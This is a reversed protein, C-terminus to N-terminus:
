LFPVPVFTLAFLVLSLVALAQRAPTLPEEQLAPPHGLGVVFRTLLWWVLWAWSLFIGAGLLGFSVARSGARAGRRGLLAYLVHGGDLQGLPVLNLATVYLGLWAAFGVPHVALDAGAPLPGHVARAVLWTLASDGFVRPEGSAAAGTLWARLADYPSAPFQSAGGVSVVESHAFGWLLLPLAVLLGAIPGAAGIELTARRSPLPSRIRIVAGLTGAGFPVPIFFPLTADVGHRRALVYHGMEHALLIAVLAGAFPLGGRFVEAALAVAAPLGGRLAALVHDLLSGHALRVAGPSLLFGAWVTTAVTAFFLLVNAAPFSGRPRARALVDDM